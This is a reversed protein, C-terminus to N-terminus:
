NKLARIGLNGYRHYSISLSKENHYFLLEFRGNLLPKDRIVIKALSAAKMYIKDNVSPKAHYRIREYEEIKAVFDEEKEQIFEASLHLKQSLEKAKSINENEDFSIDLKVKATNAALIVALIDRLSDDKCVRFGLNKIKTYSFLNDEGRINVYDKSLSFENEYHYAYSKAMASLEDLGLKKFEKSFENELM